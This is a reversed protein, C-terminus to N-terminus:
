KAPAAGISGGAGMSGSPATSATGGPSSIPPTQEATLASEPPPPTTDLQAPSNDAFVNMSSTATIAALLSLQKLLTNM